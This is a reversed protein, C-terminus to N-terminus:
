CNVNKLTKKLEYIFFNHTNALIKRKYEWKMQGKLPIQMKSASLDQRCVKEWRHMGFVILSFLMFIANEQTRHVVKTVSIKSQIQLCHRWIFASILNLYSSSCYTCSAIIWLFYFIWFLAWRLEKIIHWFM